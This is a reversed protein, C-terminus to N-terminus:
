KDDAHIDRVAREIQANERQGGGNTGDTEEGSGGGRGATEAFIQMVFICRGYHM